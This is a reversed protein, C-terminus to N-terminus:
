RTDGQSRPVASGINAGGFDDDRGFSGLIV